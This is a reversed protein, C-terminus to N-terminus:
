KKFLPKPGTSAPKKIQIKPLPKKIAPGTPFTKVPKKGPLNIIVLLIAVVIIIIVIIWIWPFGSSEELTSCDFSCDEGRDCVGDGCVSVIKEDETYSVITTFDSLSVQESSLFYYSEVSNFDPVSYKLGSTTSEGRQSSMIDLPAIVYVYADELGKKPSVEQEILYYNETGGGYYTVEVSQIIGTVTIDEQMLYTEEADLNSPIDDLSVIQIEEKSSTFTVSNPMSNVTSEVNALLTDENVFGIQKEYSELQDIKTDLSQAYGLMYVVYYANQSQDTLGKFSSLAETILSSADLIDAPDLVSFNQSSTNGLFEAKMTYDNITSLSINFVTELDLQITSTPATITSTETALDYFSSVSTDVYNYEYVLALNSFTVDGGTFELEIPVSCTNTKCVGSYVTGDETESGVYYETATKITLPATQWSEADVTTSLTNEYDGTQVYIPFNVNYTKACLGGEEKPCTYATTTEGNTDTPMSYLNETLDASPDSFLCILYNGEIAYILEIECSGQTEPLDCTDSGGDWGNTPYGTPASLIAAKINGDASLQTYNAFIKVNKTKPLTLYECYYDSSQIYSTGGSSLDFDDSYILEPDYSQFTGIYHWDTAGEGGIDIMIDKANNGTIDFDISEISSYRPIQIAISGSSTLKKTSAPNSGTTDGLIETYTYTISDLTEKITKTYTNTGVTLTLVENVSVDESLFLSITGTIPTNQAYKTSDLSLTIPETGTITTTTNTTITSNTSNTNNDATIFGTIEADIIIPGLVTLVFVAAIIAIYVGREM